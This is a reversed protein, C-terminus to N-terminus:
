KQARPGNFLILVVWVYARHNHCGLQYLFFFSSISLRNHILIRSVPCHTLEGKSQIPHSNMAGSLLVCNM